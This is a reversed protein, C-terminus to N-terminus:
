KTPADVWGPPPTGTTVAEAMFAASRISFYSFYLLHFKHMLLFFADAKEPIYQPLEAVQDRAVENLTKGQDFAAGAPADM